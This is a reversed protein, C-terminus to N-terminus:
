MSNLESKGMPRLELGSITGFDRMSNTFFCAGPALYTREIQVPASIKAAAFTSLPLRAVVFLDPRRLISTSIRFMSLTQPQKECELRRLLCVLIFVDFPNTFGSPYDITVNPSGRAYSSTLISMRDGRCQNNIQNNSTPVSMPYANTFCRTPCSM